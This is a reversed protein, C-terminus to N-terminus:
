LPLTLEANRTSKFFSRECAVEFGTAAIILRYPGPRLSSIIYEGEGDSTTTRMEGTEDNTLRITAGTVVAGRPDTVTGRTSGTHTQASLSQACLLLIIAILAISIRLKM